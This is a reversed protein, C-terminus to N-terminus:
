AVSSYLGEGRAGSHLRFGGRNKEAQEIARAAILITGMARQQQPLQPTDSHAGGHNGRFGACEDERSHALDALLGARYLRGLTLQTRCASTRQLQNLQQRRQGSDGM